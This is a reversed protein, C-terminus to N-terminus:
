ALSGIALVDRPFRNTSTAFSMSKAFCSMSPKQFDSATEVGEWRKLCEAAEVHSLGADRMRRYAEAVLADIADTVAMTKGMNM